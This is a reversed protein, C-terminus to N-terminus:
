YKKGHLAERTANYQMKLEIHKMLDFKFELSLIYLMGLIEGAVGSDLSDGFKCVIKTIDFMFKGLNDRDRSDIAYEACVHEFSSYLRALSIQEKDCNLYGIFDFMRIVADATEDEMSDKVLKEFSSKIYAPKDSELIDTANVCNLYVEVDARINKRHAELGEGLESIVLMLREENPRHEKYFGKSVSTKHAKIILEGIINKDM